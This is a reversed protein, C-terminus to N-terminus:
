SFIHKTCDRFYQKLSQQSDIQEPYGIIYSRSSRNQGLGIVFKVWGLEATKDNLIICKIIYGGTAILRSVNCDSDTRIENYTELPM